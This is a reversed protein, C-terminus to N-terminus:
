KPWIFTDEKMRNEYEESKFRYEFMLENGFMLSYVGLLFPRKPYGVSYASGEGKISIVQKAPSYARFYGFKSGQQNFDEPDDVDRDNLGIGIGPCHAGGIAKLSGARLEVAACVSSGQYRENRSGHVTGYGSGIGAANEGGIAVTLKDGILIVDCFSPHEKDGPGAGIGPANKGGTAVINAGLAFRGCKTGYASGIGPSNDYGIANVKGSGRIVLKNHINEDWAVTIGPYGKINNEGEVFITTSGSAFIGPQTPGADITVDRLTPRVGAPVTINLNKKLTGTLITNPKVTYNSEITSLDVIEQSEEASGGHWSDAEETYKEMQEETAPLLTIEKGDEEATLVEGNIIVEDGLESDEFDIIVKSNDEVAYSFQFDTDYRSVPQDIVEGEKIVFKEKWGKDESYFQYILVVQNGDADTTEGIWQGTLIRQVPASPNDETTCSNMAILSIFMLSLFRAIRKM